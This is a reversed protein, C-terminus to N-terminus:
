GLGLGALAAPVGLAALGTVLLPWRAGRRALVAALVLGLVMLVAAPVAMPHRVVGAMGGGPPEEQLRLESRTTRFAPDPETVRVQLKGPRWPKGRVELRALPTGAAGEPVTHDLTEGRYLRELVPEGEAGLVRVRFDAALFRGAYEQDRNVSALALTYTEEGWVRFEASQWGSVRSFDLPVAVADQRAETALVAICAAALGLSLVWGTWLAVRGKSKVFQRNM